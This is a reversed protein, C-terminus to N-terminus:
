RDNNFYPGNWLGSGHVAEVMRLGDTVKICKKCDAYEGHGRSEVAPITRPTGQETFHEDAWVHLRMNCDGHDKGFIEQVLGVAKRNDSSHTPGVVWDGVKVERGNLYHM